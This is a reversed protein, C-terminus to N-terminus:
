THLVPIRRPVCEKTGNGEVHQTQWGWKRARVQARYYNQTQMCESGTDKNRIDSVRQEINAFARELADINAPTSICTVAIRDM